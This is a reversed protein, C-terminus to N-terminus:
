KFIDGETNTKHTEFLKTWFVSIFYSLRYRVAATSTMGIVRNERCLRADSLTNLRRIEASVDEYERMLKRLAQCQEKYRQNAWKKHAKLRVPLPWMTVDPEEKIWRELVHHQPELASQDITDEFFNFTNTDFTRAAEIKKYNIIKRENESGARKKEVHIDYMTVVSPLEKKKQYGSGIHIMPRKRTDPEEAYNATIERLEEEDVLDSEDIDDEFVLGQQSDLLDEKLQDTYTYLSSTPGVFEIADKLWIEIPNLEKKQISEQINRNGSAWEDNRGKGRQQKGRGPKKQSRSPPPPAPAPSPTSTVWDDEDDVTQAQALPINARKEEYVALRGLYDRQLANLGNIRKVYDLTVCPEEYMETIIGMIQKQIDDRRRYLRGVGRVSEARKRLEFLLHDKLLDSKSRSGIRVIKDEYDLIHELFQDLAKYIANTVM